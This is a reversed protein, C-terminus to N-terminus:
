LNIYIFLVFYTNREDINFFVGREVLRFFFFDFNLYLCMKTIKATFFEWGIIM